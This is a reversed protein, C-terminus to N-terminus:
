MGWVSIAGEMRHFIKRDWGAESRRDFIVLHGEAAGAIEMYGATQRLGAEITADLSKHLLKLEVVVRQDKWQILLDTRRRGLGYERDIRGGGNVIRQLFAQMLLQPGAERYDFRQLWHESNERFFQQFAKMLGHMDLRGRDDVYWATKHTGLLDTQVEFTMERPIVEAYIANAIELGEPGRRILGLDIAYNADDSQEEPQRDEGSVIPQMVRRVRDERLKDSLQDLHTDRRLILNEKAQEVVAATVPRARDMGDPMRFCAEYALANVLWPQGRTYRWVLPYVAEDFVQGTSATHQQYLERIQEPTFDGLRLSEAKINFASGGTVIEKTGHIRYDRVDRVGCLVVSQPFGSPRDVYGSRIQRLLSILSDGVLSDVEDFLVVLPLPSHAAWEALLARLSGVPGAAALVRERVSEPFPDGLTRLAEAGIEYAISRMAVALDDRAAQGPELNVYIARYAGTSNLHATLAGLCSTKGTQRPAHLVFYKGDAILGMLLPLDLRELPSLLYHWEPRVPGATCFKRVNAM